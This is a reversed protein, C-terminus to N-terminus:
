TVPRLPEDFAVEFGSGQVSPPADYGVVHARARVAAPAARGTRVGKTGSTGIRPAPMQKTCIYARGASVQHRRMMQSMM